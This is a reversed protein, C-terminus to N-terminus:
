VGEPKSLLGAQFYSDASLVNPDCVCVDLVFLSAGPLSLHARVEEDAAVRSTRISRRGTAASAAKLKAVNRLSTM